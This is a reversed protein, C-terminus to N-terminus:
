SSGSAEAAHLQTDAHGAVAVEGIGIGHGLRDVVQEVLEDLGVGVQDGDGAQGLTRVPDDGLAHEGAAPREVDM